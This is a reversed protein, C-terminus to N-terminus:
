VARALTLVDVRVAGSKKLLKACHSATSGSTFVDDILLVSKGSVLKPRTVSFANKVTMERAKKDMAVRHMPTHITRVLSQEDLPIDSAHAVIRALVAAQNYGREFLRKASLPVPLILDAKTFTHREFAGIMCTRVTKAVSPVHKLNIVSAALANDYVGAARASDYHHGDCLQCLTEAPQGSERLFAGCKTCLIDLGSFIKTRKWCARCAVGDASADVSQKCISCQQPYFLSKLADPILNLM